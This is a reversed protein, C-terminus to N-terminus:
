GGLSVIFNRLDVPLRSKDLAQAEHIIMARITAKQIDDSSEYQIKLRYMERMTAESYARSEIMVDRRTAEYKPAFFNFSGYAAYNIGFIIVALGGVGLATVLIARPLSWYYERQAEKFDDRYGM